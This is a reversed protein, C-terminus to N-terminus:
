RVNSSVFDIKLNESIQSAVVENTASDIITSLYATRNKGYKLYTIDTLFVENPKSRKLNVILKIQIFVINMHAKAIKVILIARRVPSLLHYKRM